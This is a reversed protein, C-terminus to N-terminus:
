KDLDDESSTEILESEQDQDSSENMEEIGDPIQYAILRDDDPESDAEQDDDEGKDSDSSAIEGWPFTRLLVKTEFIM